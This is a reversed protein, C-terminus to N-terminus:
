EADAAKNVLVRLRAKPNVCKGATVDEETFTAMLIERADRRSYDYVIYITGDPSQVGDPYSVGAREDLLLGGQWTVGDNSSVYATLHSRGHNSPPAHKVLLLNGSALRRIFFRAASDIHTVTKAPAGESWTVGGDSSSSEGVGYNTRALMWLTGDRREVIMHEDCQRGKIDSRGRPAFTKGEDISAVAWSGTTAANDIVYEPGPPRVSPMTWIAAPLLWTGDRLVTPKNMMIGDCIPRPKSWTPTEVGSDETVIAWVGGRGDWLTVGQAWFLWLRSQPDHWLCPDFARIVGPPDIVLKLDSWTAGDDGSTALMVFNEPGEDPGGGYWTTWLRGNDAREIGPIGQFVRARYAPGPQTNVSVPQLALTQPDM